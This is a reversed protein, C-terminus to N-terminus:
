EVATGGVRASRAGTAPRSSATRRHIASCMVSSSRGASRGARSVSVAPAASSSAAPIVGDAVALAAPSPGSSRTRSSIIRVSDQGAARSVTAASAARRIQRDAPASNRFLSSRSRRDDSSASISANRVLRGAESNAETAASNSTSTGLPTSWGTDARCSARDLISRISPSGATAARSSLAPERATTTGLLSAIVERDGNRCRSPRCTVPDFPRFHSLTRPPVSVPLPLTTATM